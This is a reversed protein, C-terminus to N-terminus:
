MWYIGLGSYQELQIDYYIGTIANNLTLLVVIQRPTTVLQITYTGYDNQAKIFDDVALMAPDGGPSIAWALDRGIDIYMGLNYIENMVEFPEILPIQPYIERNIPSRLVTDEPYIEIGAHDVPFRSVEYGMEYYYEPYMLRALLPAFDVTDGLMLYAKLDQRVKELAEAQREASQPQPDAPEVLFSFSHEGWFGGSVRQMAAFQLLVPRGGMLAAPYNRLYLCFPTQGDGDTWEMAPELAEEADPAIQVGLGEFYYLMYASNINQYEIAAQASLNKHELIDYWQWPPFLVEEATQGLATPIVPTPQEAMVGPRPAVVAWAALGTVLAGALLIGATLALFRVSLGPRTRGAPRAAGPKDPGQEPLADGAMELPGEM